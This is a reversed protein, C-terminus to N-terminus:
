NRDILTRLSVSQQQGNETWKVTVIVDLLRKNVDAIDLEVAGNAPPLTGAPLAALSVQTHREFGARPPPDKDEPVVPDVKQGSDGRWSPSSKLYEIREQAWNYAVTRNDAFINSRGSQYYLAGIAVLAIALIVMGIVVDMLIFGAAPGKGKAM